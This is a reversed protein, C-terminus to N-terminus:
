TLGPHGDKIHGLFAAWAGQSFVLAPGDRDKSDRVAVQQPGAGVEVCNGGNGTSHSSTRWEAGVEVCAGGNGTSYSSTRWEVRSLEM